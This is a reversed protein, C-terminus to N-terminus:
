TLHLPGFVLQGLAIDNFDQTNNRSGEFVKASALAATARRFQIGQFKILM